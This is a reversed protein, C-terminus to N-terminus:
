AQAGCDCDADLRGTVTATTVKQCDGRHGALSLPNDADECMAERGTVWMVRFRKFTRWVGDRFPGPDEYITDGPAVTVSEPVRIIVREGREWEAEIPV